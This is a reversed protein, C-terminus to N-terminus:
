RLDTPIPELAQAYLVCLDESLTDSQSARIQVLVLDLSELKAHLEHHVRALHQWRQNPYMGALIRSETVPPLWFAMKRWLTDNARAAAERIDYHSTEIQFGVIQRMSELLRIQDAHRCQIM